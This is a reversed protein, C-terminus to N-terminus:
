QDTLRGQLYLWRIFQLRMQEPIAELQRRAQSLNRIRFLDRVGQDSFGIKLLDRKWEDDSKQSLTM